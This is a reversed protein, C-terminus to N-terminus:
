AISIVKSLYGIRSSRVYADYNRFCVLQSILNQRSHNFAIRPDRVPISIFRRAAQFTCILSYVKRLPVRIHFGANNVRLNDSKPKRIGKEKRLPFKNWPVIKLKFKLGFDSIFWMKSIYLSYTACNLQCSKVIYCGYYRHNLKKRVTLPSYLSLNDLPMNFSASYVCPCLFVYTSPHM